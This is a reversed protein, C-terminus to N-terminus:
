ENNTKSEAVIVRIRGGLTVAQDAYAKVTYKSLDKIKDLTTSVYEGKSLYYVGLKEAMQYKTSKSTVTTSTIADVSFELLEYSSAISGEEYRFGTPGKTMSFDSYSAKSVKGPAGDIIYEYSGSSGAYSLETFIGYSNLDGTSNDLILNKIEGNANTDYYHIRSDLLISNALRVPYLSIYKGKSYDLIKVDPALRKGGISTGDSSFTAENLSSYSKNYKSVTVNGGEYTVRIIDEEYFTLSDGDYDQTYTNGAADVFTAYNTNEYIGDKNEVSHVGLSMVLGTIANSYEEQTLVGAVTKNKGLLLTVIDGKSITGVSSFALATTSSEFNYDAGAVTVSTPNIRDPNVASLIGTVKTDYAWVTKASESYYLVDYKSIAAYSSKLDNKYFSATLVSFPISNTWNDGAVIPGETKTNVVSLYDLEGKTDLSYGLTEAYVRGDKTTANLVNYFLNVCDDYSLYATKKTATINKNLKKSAYLAMKNAAANTGFDSDSYGLLKLVGHIAEMLTVGRDPQFSGDLYGYMWGGSLSTKIYGAAWHKRSVDSFLSVNSSTAATDKLSSMNVLLQSYQARTIRAADPSIVGKDTKMIGLADIVRQANGAALVQETGMAPLTIPLLMVAAMIFALLKRM